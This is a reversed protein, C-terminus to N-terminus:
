RKLLQKIEESTLITDVAKQVGDEIAKSSAASANKSVPGWFRGKTDGIGEVFRTFLVNWNSDYVTIKYTISARWVQWNSPPNYVYFKDIQPEIVVDLEKAKNKTYPYIEWITEVKRFHQELELKFQTASAEGLNPYYFITFVGLKHVNYGEFKTTIYHGVNLPAKEGFTRGSPKTDVVYSFCNPLLLALSILLGTSVLM